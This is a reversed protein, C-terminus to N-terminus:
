KCKAGISKLKRSIEQHTVGFRDGIETQTHGEYILRLLELDRASITRATGIVEISQPKTVTHGYQAIDEVATIKGYLYMRNKAKWRRAVRRVAMALLGPTIRTYERAMLGSFADQVVDECDAWPVGAKSAVAMMRKSHERYLDSILDDNM